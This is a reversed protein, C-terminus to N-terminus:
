PGRHEIGSSIRRVNHQEGTETSAGKSVVVGPDVRRHPAGQYLDFIEAQVNSKTLKPAGSGDISASSFAKPHRHKRLV